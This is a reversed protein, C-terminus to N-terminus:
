LRLHEDLDAVDPRAVPELVVAHREAGGTRASSHSRSAAVPRGRTSAALKTLGCRTGCIAPASSTKRARAGRRRRSRRRQHQVRPGPARAPPAAHRRSGRRRDPSRCTRPACGSCSRSSRRPRSRPSRDGRARPAPTRAVTVSPPRKPQGNSPRTSGPTTTSWTPRLGGGAGVLDHQRVRDADAHRALDAPQQGGRDGGGPAPRDPQVQVVGAVGAVGVGRGPELVAHRSNSADTPPRPPQGNAGRAVPLM